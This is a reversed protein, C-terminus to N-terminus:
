SEAEEVQPPEAVRDDELATEDNWVFWRGNPDLAVYCKAGEESRELEPKEPVPTSAALLAGYSEFGYRKALEDKNGSRRKMPQSM